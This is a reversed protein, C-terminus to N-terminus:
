RLPLRFQLAEEIHSSHIKECQEIDAITQGVKICRMYARPSLKMSQAATNLTTIATNSLPLQKIEASTLSNNLIGQRDLQTKRAQKVLQRMTQSSMSSKHKSRTLLLRHDIREVPVLLDIRDIFPGSIRSQYSLIQQMSCVCETNQDGYYGCPCPNYAGILICKAPFRVTRKARSVTIVGEELPQRLSELVGRNFEPIEDLFLVGNHALSVEGPLPNAGGGVLAIRSSSHHPSRFPRKSHLTNIPNSLLSHLQTTEIAEDQTLPPLIANISQALLTKGTGPPGSLLVNHQGAAAILLARKAHEHGVIEDMAFDEQDIRPEQTYELTNLQRTNTFHKYIQSLHSVPLIAVGQVFKAESQNGAPIFITDINSKKASLIHGIIGPVSRVSGDLGLEGIFATRKMSAIELQESVCLIAIAIALDFGAGDKTINAPALNIVIRKPPVTLRCSTIASRVREKAEEVSKSGLGVISIGPLSNSLSAEVRITTAEYGQIYSSTVAIPM